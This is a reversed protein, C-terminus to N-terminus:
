GSGAARWAKQLRSISDARPRGPTVVAPSVLLTGKLPMTDDPEYEM